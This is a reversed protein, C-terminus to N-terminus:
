RIVALELVRGGVRVAYIGSQLDTTQLTYEQVPVGTDINRVIRGLMDVVEIKSFTGSKVQVLTASQTPNPMLMLGSVQPVEPALSILECNSNPVLEFCNDFYGQLDNQQDFLTQVNQLATNGPTHVYYYAIILENVAGPELKFPGYSLVAARKGPTNGAKIESVSGPDNPNGPYM